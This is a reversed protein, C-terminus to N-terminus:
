DNKNGRVVDGLINDGIGAHIQTISDVRLMRKYPSLINLFDPEKFKVMNKLFKGKPIDKGNLICDRIVRVFKYPYKGEITIDDSTLGRAYYYQLARDIDKDNDIFKTLNSQLVIESANDANFGALHAVGQNTVTVDAQADILAVVDKNEIAEFMEDLEEQVLKAQLKLKEWDIRNLDGKENGFLENMWSFKEFDTM